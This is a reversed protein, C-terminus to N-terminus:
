TIPFWDRMLFLESNSRIGLKRFASQKQTSITNSSRSFKGAIQAVSMGNLCCRLVERERPSLEAAQPLPADGDRTFRARLASESFEAMEAAMERTLYVQGRCVARVATAVGELPQSKGIFGHAGAQLVLAATSPTYHATLVLIRTDPLRARVQKILHIGDIDSAGLAFDTIILDTPRKGLSEMLARSSSYLGDIEIDPERSLRLYLGHQILEHDDVIALRHRPKESIHM